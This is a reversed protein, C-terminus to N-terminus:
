GREEATNRKGDTGEEARLSVYQRGAAQSSPTDNMGLGLTMEEM